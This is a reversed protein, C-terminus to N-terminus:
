ANAEPPALTPNGARSDVAVGPQLLRRITALLTKAQIPKAELEASLHTVRRALERSVHGTLMIAPVSKLAADSRMERLFTLGNMEPMRYDTIVLEPPRTRAFALAERGNTATLCSFGARRLIKVLVPRLLPDDEVVLVMARPPAVVLRRAREIVEEATTAVDAGESAIASADGDAAIVVPVDFLTPDLQLTQFLELGHMDSLELALVLVDVPAGRLLGLAVAGTGAEVVRWGEAEIRAAALRRWDPDSHAVLIVPPGTRRAAPASAAVASVAEPSLPLRVFFRSGAGVQSEAWLKGGLARVISQSIALGLGAGGHERTTSSDLQRFPEFIADLYEPAIGPGQDGVEVVANEHDRWWRITVSKGRASFKVANALLNVLV